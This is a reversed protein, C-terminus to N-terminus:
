YELYELAEHIICENLQEDDQIFAWNNARTAMAGNSFTEGVFYDHLGYQCQSPPQAHYGM